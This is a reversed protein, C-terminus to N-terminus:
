VSAAPENKISFTRSTGSADTTVGWLADAIEMTAKQHTVLIFQTGQNALLRLFHTFRRINAEDLPADVEDLVALPLGADDAPASALAFLYALAAMTREGASLLHLNRTRKGKPTVRMALGELAGAEDRVLELEGDGGLLEVIYTRFSASVRAISERLKATVERELIDLAESLESVAALADSVGNELDTLAQTESAFEEAALMNVAGIEERRAKIQAVRQSWGRPTGEPDGISLLAVLAEDRADPELNPLLEALLTEFNGERRSKADRARELTERGASLERGRTTVAGELSRRETELRELDNRAASLDLQRAAAELREIEPNAHLLKASWEAELVTIAELRTWIADTRVAVQELRAVAQAHTRQQEAYVRGRAAADRLAEDSSREAIRTDTVTQSTSVLGLELPALDIQEVSGLAISVAQQAALRASLSTQRTELGEIRTDLQLIVARASESTKRLGAVRGDIRTVAERSASGAEKEDNLLAELKTLNAEVDSLEVRAEELRRADAFSEGANDRGRGGTVAGGSELLEGDLTVLRPRDRYQRTLALATELDAVLLTEGFLNELVPELHAGEIGILAAAYGLVGRETAIPLNRRGRVRLIDLPLFTARGGSRKLSDIVSRAVEGSQVVINETRRGLAAGIATEFQKPVRLLESVPGLIGAIGSNMARRPGDSLYARSERLAELRTLEKALPARAGRLENVRGGTEIMRASIGQAERELRELMKTAAEIETRSEELQPASEAREARLTALEAGIEELQKELAERETSQRTLADSQARTALELKDRRQRLDALDKRAQLDAQEASRLATKADTLAAELAPLDDLPAVPAVPPELTGLTSLETELGTRELRLAVVSADAASLRERLVNAEGLLRESEASLEAFAAQRGERTVRLEELAGTAAGIADSARQAGVEAETIELELKAMEAQLVRVRQRSLSLELLEQEGILSTLESAALAEGELKVVRVRKLAALDEARELHIRAGELRELSQARRHTARSLGAAEELYGLMTTPNASVVAGIEGQGVVAIGGPGLGSGRLVDHLDRVRVTKGYLELDSDGDRYLRRAISVAGTAGTVGPVGILELQVEALNLPAKGSSGHFILETSERVRLERTRATHSAWRIAEIVNSKGSGNPGIVANVSGSFELRVREGFSKFGQITVSQIRVSVAGGPM